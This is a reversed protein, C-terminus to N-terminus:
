TWSKPIHKRKRMQNPARNPWSAKERSQQIVTDGRFGTNHEGALRHRRGESGMAIGLNHDIRLNAEEKM